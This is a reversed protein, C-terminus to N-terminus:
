HDSTCFQIIFVHFKSEIFRTVNSGSQHRVLFLALNSRPKVAEILYKFV